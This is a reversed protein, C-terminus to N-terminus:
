ASQSRGREDGGLKHAELRPLPKRGDPTPRSWIVECVAKCVPCPFESSGEPIGQLSLQGGKCQADTNM